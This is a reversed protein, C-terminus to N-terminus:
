LNEKQLDIRFIYDFYKEGVSCLDFNKEEILWKIVLSTFVAKYLELYSEISLLDSIERADIAEQFIKNIEFEDKINNIIEQLDSMRERRLEKLFLLLAEQYTVNNQMLHLLNKNFKRIRTLPSEADSALIQAQGSIERALFKILEQYLDHKDKFHWYLAGKTVNANGSIESISSSDYGKESFVALASYLIAHKTDKAKSKDINM